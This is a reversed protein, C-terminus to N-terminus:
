RGLEYRAAEITYNCNVFPMLRSFEDAAAAFDDENWTTRGAARMSRYGADRGAAYAIDRTLTM